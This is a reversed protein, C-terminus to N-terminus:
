QLTWSYKVEFDLIGANVLQNMKYEVVKPASYMAILQLNIKGNEGYEMKYIHQLLNLYAIAKDKKEENWGSNSMSIKLRDESEIRDGDFMSFVNNGPIIAGVTVGSKTIIEAVSRMKSMDIVIHPSNDQQIADLWRQIMREKTLQDKGSLLVSPIEGYNEIHEDMISLFNM